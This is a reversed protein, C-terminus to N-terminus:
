KSATKDEGRDTGGDLVEEKKGEFAKDIEQRIRAYTVDEIVTPLNFRNKANKGLGKNTRAKYAYTGDKNAIKVLYFCNSFLGAIDNRFGGLINPVKDISKDVKKELAEDSELMEHINCVINGKFTLVDMLMFGYCWTRLQGYMSRTDLEGSKTRLPQFQQMWLWRNHILYTLNDIGLTEIEGKAQRDKLIQIKDAIRKFLDKLNGRDPIFYEQDVVNANLKPNLQWVHHHNPETSIIGLKPYSCMNFTKGVGSEGVYMSVISVKSM